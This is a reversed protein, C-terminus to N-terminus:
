QLSHELALYRYLGPLIGEVNNILLYTELAHRAGASPVLRFTAGGAVIRKVGQTCWLLFSLEEISVPNTSYRRISRRAEMAKRLDMPNVVIQDPAPLRILEREADPPVELPPAGEGSMQGSPELYGFRTKEMFEM